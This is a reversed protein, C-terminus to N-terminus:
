AVNALPAAPEAAPAIAPEHWVMDEPLVVFSEGVEPTNVTVVDPDMSRLRLSVPIENCIARVLAVLQDETGVARILAGSADHRVWGKLSLSEAIHVVFPHFDAAPLIGTVRLLLDGEEANSTMNIAPMLHSEDTM